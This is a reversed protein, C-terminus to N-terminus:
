PVTVQVTASVTEGDLDTAIIEISTSGTAVGDITLKGDVITATAIAEDQSEASYSLAPVPDISLIKVLKAPDIEAPATTDNMPQNELKVTEGDIEVDYTTTPLDNIEDAVDLGGDAVRGFVTFGGNQNDLNGSNNSLNAFFQSSASNPNGPMKAMAVTGKLNSIGPENAIEPFGEVKAFDTGDHIYGGTQVVFNSISRHFFSDQYRGGDAYSLFNAVTGPTALPYLIIDFNGLTTHVRRADRTDPDTFHDALPVETQAGAAVQVNGLPTAIVPPGPMRIIRLTLDEEVVEGNSFTAKIRAKKLGEETASGTVKRTSASFGLGAPLGTVNMSVLAGTDTVRIEHDFPTEFFIPPHLRSTIAVGDTVLGIIKTFSSAAQDMIARVRFEYGIGAQLGTIDAEPDDVPASGLYIFDTTGVRRMFIQFDTAIESNGKWKLNVSNRGTVSGVFGTPAKLLVPRALAVNSYGSYIRGATGNRFARMRFKYENNYLFGGLPKTARSNAGIDGIKTFASGGVSQELEFGAELSSRDKWRFVLEGEGESRATLSAPALFPRTKATASVFKTVVAGGNKYARARFSYKKKPELGPVIVNFKKDPSLLALDQWKGKGSRFQLQYGEETTSNDKWQIRIRGDDVAKATMKGPDAFTTTTLATAHAIASPKSLKEKGEKGNYALVQFAVTKGRLDNTLITHETLDAVPIRKFFQPNGKLGVRIEWGKENKSNDKWKLKFANSGVATVRLNTPAAPAKASLPAAVFLSAALCLISRFFM